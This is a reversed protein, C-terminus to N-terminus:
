RVPEYLVKKNRLLKLNALNLGLLFGWLVAGQGWLWADTMIMSIVIYLIAWVLMTSLIFDDRTISLRFSKFLKKLMNYILLLFGFLGVLGTETAVAILTEHASLGKVYLEFFFKPITYYKYSSFPFSFAGIGVIPHKLFANLATDWIFVRSLLSNQVRGNYDISEQFNKIAVRHAISPNLKDVIIYFTPLLILATIALVLLRKKNIGWKESHRYLFILLFITAVTITIWPNRTEMFISSLLLVSMIILVSFKIRKLMLIYVLTIVIAIGVYDVAMIGAFGYVRQKLVMGEFIALLSNFFVLMVFFRLFKKIEDTNSVTLATLYVVILFGLLNYSRWLSKLIDVSNFYSPIIAIIYIIFYKSLSNSFDNKKIHDYNLVFIFPFLITFFMATSFTLFEYNLFISFILLYFALKYNSLVLLVFPIWLIILVTKAPWLSAM